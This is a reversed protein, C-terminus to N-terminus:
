IEIICPRIAFAEAEEKKSKVIPSYKKSYIKEGFTRIKPSKFHTLVQSSMKQSTDVEVYKIRMFEGYRPFKDNPM